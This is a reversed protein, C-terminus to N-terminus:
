RGLSFCRKFNQFTNGQPMLVEYVKLALRYSHTLIFLVVIAVLILSSKEAPIHLDANNPIDKPTNEAAQLCTCVIPAATSNSRIRRLPIPNKEENTPDPVQLYNTSNRLAHESLGRNPRINVEKSDKTEENFSNDSLSRKM